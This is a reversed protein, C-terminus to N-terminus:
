QEFEYGDAYLEDLTDQISSAADEASLSGAVLGQQNEQFARTIEPPWFWDLYTIQNPSCSEAYMTALPDDSAVVNANCSVPDGNQVNLAKVVPDSTMVDIIQHAIGAREEKIDAYIGLASGTGGPLQRAIAADDVSLV